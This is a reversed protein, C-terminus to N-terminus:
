IYNYKSVVTSGVTISKKLHLQSKHCLNTM